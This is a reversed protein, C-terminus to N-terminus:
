GLLDLRRITLKEKKATVPSSRLDTEIEMM